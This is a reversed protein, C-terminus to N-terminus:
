VQPREDDSSDMTQIETQSSNDDDSFLQTHVEAATIRGNKASTRPLHPDLEVHDFGNEDDSIDSSM